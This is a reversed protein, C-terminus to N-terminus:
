NLRKGGPYRLRRVPFLRTLRGLATFALAVPTYLVLLLDNWLSWNSVYDLDSAIKDAFLNEVYNEDINVPSLLEEEAIYRLQTPGTLGPRFALIKRQEPTLASMFRPLDPRPGVLSMEGRAVNLLNPLEDLKTVRLLNGVRTIRPDGAGTVGPGLRAADPVMTRFKYIFFPKGDRGTREQSFFVPGPGSLKILGAIVGLVPALAALALSAAALDFARKVYNYGFGAGPEKTPRKRAM